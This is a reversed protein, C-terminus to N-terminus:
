GTSYCDSTGNVLAEWEARDLDRVAAAVSEVVAREVGMGLVRVVLGDPERWTVLAPAPNPSWPLGVSAARGAIQSPELGTALFRVANM